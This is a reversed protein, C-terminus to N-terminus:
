NYLWLCYTGNDETIYMNRNSINVTTKKVKNTIQTNNVSFLIPSQYMHFFLLM